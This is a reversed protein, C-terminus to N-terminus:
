LNVYWLSTGEVIKRGVVWEDVAKVVGPWGDAYDHGCLLGGPKILPTWARIDEKVNEYDHEADIFVMDFMVGHKRAEAAADLSSMRLAGVNDLGILNFRFDDFMQDASKQPQSQIAILGNWTDVCTLRGKTNSAIACSSRGLFAGIEVIDTHEAAREALWLLEEPSMWGDITLARRIRTDYKSLDGNKSQFPASKPDLEYYKGNRDWHFCLVGGHALIKHGAAGAKRCFYIDDTMSARAVDLQMDEQTHVGADMCEDLTNADVFWPKSLSEFVSTRILLCGTGIEEVPFVDGVKWDWSSGMNSKRFVMPEGSGRRTYIGGIMDYRPCSDLQQILAIAADPTPQVDDDLFWLYQSRLRLAVDVLAERAQERTLPPDHRLCNVFAHAHRCNMPWVLSALGISWEPPVYRGAFPVGLVLKLKYDAPSVSM